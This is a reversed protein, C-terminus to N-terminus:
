RRKNRKIEEELHIIIGVALWLVILGLVAIILMGWWEM